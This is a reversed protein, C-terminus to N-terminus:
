RKKPQDPPNTTTSNSRKWARAVFAWFADWNRRIRGPSPPAQTTVVVQPVKPRASSNSAPPISARTGAPVPPKPAATSVPPTAVVAGSGAIAPPATSTVAASEAAKPMYRTRYDVWAQPLSVAPNRVLVVMTVDDDCPNPRYVPKVLIGGGPREEPVLTMQPETVATLMAMLAEPERFEPKLWSDALAVTGAKYPRPTKLPEVGDTGLMISKVGLVDDVVTLVKLQVTEFGKPPPSFARYTLYEPQNDSRPSIQNLTDNVAYFGDGCGLVATWTPTVLTILLTFLYSQYLIGNLSEVDGDRAIPTASALIRRLVEEQILKACEDPSPIPDRALLQEAVNLIIRVAARAGTASDPTSGCGDVTVAVIGRPLERYGFCDQNGTGQHEGKSLHLQGVQTAGNIFFPSVTGAAQAMAPAATTM